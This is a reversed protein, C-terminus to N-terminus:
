QGTGAAQRQKLIKQLDEMTFRPKGFHPLQIQLGNDDTAIDVATGRPAAFNAIVVDYTGTPMDAPLTLRTTTASLTKITTEPLQKLATIDQNGALYLIDQNLHLRSVPNLTRYTTLIRWHQPRSIDFVLIQQNHQLVYLRDGALQMDEIAGRLPINGAAKLSDNDQQLLNIGHDEQYVAIRRARARVLGAGHRAPLRYVTHPAADADPRFLQLEGQGNLLYLTAQDAWFDEIDGGEIIRHARPQLTAADILSIGQHRDAVYVRSGDTRLIDAAHDLAVSGSLRAQFPNSIDVLAIRPQPGAFFAQKGAIVLQRADGLDVGTVWTPNLPNNIDFVQLGDRGKAAFAYKGQTTIQRVTDNHHYSGALRPRAPDSINLVFLGGWWDAVYAFHGQIRLGWAAGETDYSGIIRAQAPTSIDVVQVGALWDAVYLYSGQRELGRANGPTQIHRLPRPHTPDSIDLVYLGRDFFAVYAIHGSILVDEAAGGPNFQGILRPAAPDTVDYVLLGPDDDAVYAIHGSVQISWAKGPTQTDSILTPERPDQVDIIQFGGRHSALYLRNDALVPTYALGPTLLRSLQRPQRPDHIDIVQLGHDDDAVFAEDDRVVIGKPSGRTHFSALLGPHQPKSIDYLHIGSFWDAVYAIQDRIFLRREGGYNVGQGFDLGENGIQPASAQMDIVQLARPTAVLVSQNGAAFAAVPQRHALGTNLSPMAPNSVDLALLQPGRNLALVEHEAMVQVQRVDGLQQHSGLWRIHTPDAIDLISVGRPGRAVYAQNDRIALDLAPGTTHYHGILRSKGPQRIDLVMLGQKGAALFLRGDHLALSRVPFSLSVQERITLQAPQSSDLLLLQDHALLLCVMGAGADLNVIPAPATFHGLPRPNAPNEIAFIDLRRGSSLYARQEAIVLHEYPARGSSINTIRRAGGAARLDYILLGQRATLVLAFRGQHALAVPKGALPIQQKIYPGGPRIFLQSGNPLTQHEIRVARDKGQILTAPQVASIINAAHAPLIGTSILPILLCTAHLYNLATKRFVQHNTM